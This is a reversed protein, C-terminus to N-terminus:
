DVIGRSPLGFVYAYRIAYMDPLLSLLVPPLLLVPLNSGALYFCMKLM